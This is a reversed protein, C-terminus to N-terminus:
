RFNEVLMLDIGAAAVHTYVITQEDPAVTLSYGPVEGAPLKAVTRIDGSASDLYKFANLNGKNPRRSSSTSEVKASLM